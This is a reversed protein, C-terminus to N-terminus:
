VIISNFVQTFAIWAGWAAPTMTHMSVIASMSIYTDKAMSLDFSAESMYQCFQECFAYVREKESPSFINCGKFSNRFSCCWAVAHLCRPDDWQIGLGPDFQRGGGAVQVLEEATLESLKRNMAEVEEKLANLEEKTKM